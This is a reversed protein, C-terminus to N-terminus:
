RKRVLFLGDRVTLMVAEVKSDGSVLDNLRAIALDEDTKPRLVAGSWLVNDILLVGGSKLKPLVKQYYNPYNPKDADIFALDFPGDLKALSNLAAGEVIKIKRGHPSRALYKSAIEIARPDIELTTLSGNEPLGSAMWLASYGTFTGIELVHRAQTIEVMLKLLRGELPGTLMQPIAMKAHTEKSLEALLPDIPGSKAQAYEEIGPLTFTLM